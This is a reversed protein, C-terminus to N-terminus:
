GMAGAGGIRTKCPRRDSLHQAHNALSKPHFNNVMLGDALGRLKTLDVLAVASDFSLQGTLQNVRWEGFCRFFGAFPDPVLALWQNPGFHAFEVWLESLDRFVLIDSDLLIIHRVNNLIKADDSPFLLASIAGLKHLQREMTELEWNQYHVKTRMRVVKLTVREPMRLRAAQFYDEESTFILIRLHTEASALRRIAQITRQARVMHVDNFAILGVTVLDDETITHAL